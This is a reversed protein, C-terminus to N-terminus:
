DMVSLLLTQSCSISFVSFLLARPFDFYTRRRDLWSTPAAKIMKALASITSFIRLTSDDMLFTLARQCCQLKDLNLMKCLSTDHSDSAIFASNRYTHIIAVGTNTKKCCMKCRTMGVRFIAVLVKMRDILTESEKTATGNVTMLINM